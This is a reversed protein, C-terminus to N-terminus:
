LSNLNLNSNMQSLNSNSSSIPFYFLFFSSPVLFVLAWGLSVRGAWGEEEGKVVAWFGMEAKEGARM